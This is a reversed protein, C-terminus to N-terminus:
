IASTRQKLIKEEPCYLGRIIGALYFSGTVILADRSSLGAKAKNFAQIPDVRLSVRVSKRARKGTHSYARINSHKRAYAMLLRPSVCKRGPISFTTVYLEDVIPILKSLMSQWDKDASIAVVATLNKYKNAQKLRALNYITSGIKSPNHAGDIIVTPKNEVIEFRAPLFAPMVQKVEEILGLQKCITGALLLNKAEYALGKVPLADFDAGISVCTSKFIKCLDSRHETTFFHSDKKIIGAKDHAIKEHTSGLVNTHDLSINTIATVLPSKIVNTADYRGGLGVELVVYECRQHKFYMLAVALMTEFYSPMGYPSMEAADDIEPKIQDVIDALSNPDIYKSGVQIKEITSVTFPSTFLGAKKGKSFLTAHVMSSVSGKGATGTIHIYKFGREPNGIRDLLDQMRLLFMEPHPSAFLKAKRYDSDGTGLGELYHIAAYYRAFRASRLAPNM